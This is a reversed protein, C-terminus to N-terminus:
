REYSTTAPRRSLLYEFTEMKRLKSAHKYHNEVGYGFDKCPCQAVVHEYEWGILRIKTDDFCHALVLIEALVKGRERFLYTPKLATKIDITGLPTYFDVHGDGAPKTELDLPLHFQKAFEWEGLLGIFLYNTSFPRSTAHNKHLQDREDAIRRIDALTVTYPDVLGKM